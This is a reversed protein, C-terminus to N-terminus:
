SRECEINENKMKNLFKISNKKLNFQDLTSEKLNPVDLYYKLQYTNNTDKSVTIKINSNNAYRENYTKSSEKIMEITDSDGKYTKTVIASKVKDNSDYTVYISQTDKLNESKITKTCTKAFDENQICGTLLLSVLLLMIKKM